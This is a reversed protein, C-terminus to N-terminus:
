LRVGSLHTVQAWRGGGPTTEKDQALRITLYSSGIWISLRWDYGPLADPLPYEQPPPTPLWSTVLGAVQKDM